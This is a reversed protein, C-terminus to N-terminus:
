GLALEAMHQLRAALAAHTAPGAKGQWICAPHPRPAGVRGFVGVDGGQLAVPEVEAVGLGMGLDHSVRREGGPAAILEDRRGTSSQNVM